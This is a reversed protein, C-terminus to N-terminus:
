SIASLIFSGISAISSAKPLASLLTSVVTKSPTENTVQSEIANILDFASDSEEKSLKLKEVEKKLLQVQEIIDQQGHVINVSNDVSNQNVRVHNGSINITMQKIANDAEPLGLKVVDMQYGAPIEHFSENFGPDIIKFTEIAGNSMKRQALDGPEVLYQSGHLFIQNKQVSASLNEYKEGNCKMITIKDTMLEKFPDM